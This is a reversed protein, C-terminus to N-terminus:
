IKKQESCWRASLASFDMQAIASATYLPPYMNNHSKVQCPLNDIKDVRGSLKKPSTYLIDYLFINYIQRIRIQGQVALAIALIYKIASITLRLHQLSCFNLKFENIKNLLIFFNTWTIKSSKSSKGNFLIRFLYL